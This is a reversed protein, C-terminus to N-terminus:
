NWIKRPNSLSDVFLHTAYANGHEVLGSLLVVTKRIIWELNTM